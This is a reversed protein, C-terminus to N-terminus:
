MPPKVGGVGVAVSAATPSAADKAETVVVGDGKAVDSMKGPALMVIPATPPVLIHQEGGKYTVTLTKVGGSSTDSSVTGNTMTSAVKGAQGSSSASSVTGNTMTSSVKGGGSLTTDPLPDWDYHGEGAGRMSNPFVVVELAILKSGVDKTATGIFTDKDIASLSSKTVTVYRTSGTLALTVDKGDDTHVTIASESVASVTGRVHPARAAAFGVAPLASVAAITLRILRKMDDM